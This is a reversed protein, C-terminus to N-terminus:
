RETTIFSDMARRAADMTARCLRATRSYVGITAAMRRERLLSVRFMSCV